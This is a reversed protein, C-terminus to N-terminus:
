CSVEQETLGFTVMTERPWVRNQVKGETRFLTQGRSVLTVMVLSYLEVELDEGGLSIIGVSPEVHAQTVLFLM